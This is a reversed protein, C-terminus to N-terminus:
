KSGTSVSDTGKPSPGPKSAAAQAPSPTLKFAGANTQLSRPILKLVPSAPQKGGPIVKVPAVGKRLMRPTLKLTTTPNTQVPPKPMLEPHARIIEEYRMGAESGMAGYPDSRALQEYLPLAMAPQNQAQYLRALAFRAQPVVNEAPFRDILNKYAMVADNTKGQADLCAALGFMAQSRLTNDPNTRLFQEFQTRAEDYRGQMFLNAGALLRAQGGAQFKPYESAVKLYNQAETPATVGHSMAQPVFVESLAQGAKVREMQGHWIAYWAILGVIAVAMAGLAAQKKNAEFWAWLKLLTASETVHGQM